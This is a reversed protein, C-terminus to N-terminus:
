MVPWSPRLGLSGAYLLCRIRVDCGLIWLPGLQLEPEALGRSLAIDVRHACQCSWPLGKVPSGQCLAGYGVAQAGQVASQEPLLARVSAWGSVWLRWWFRDGQPRSEERWRLWWMRQGVATGVFMHWLHESFLPKSISLSDPSFFFSEMWSSILYPKGPPGTTLFEGALAPSM